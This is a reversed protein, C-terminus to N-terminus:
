LLLSFSSFRRSNSFKFTFAVSMYFDLFNKAYEIHRRESIMNSALTAPLTAGVDSLCFRTYKFMLTIFIIDIVIDNDSFLLNM